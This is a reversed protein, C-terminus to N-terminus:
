WPSPLVAEIATAIVEYGDVNPHINPGYPAVACMWTLECIHAVNNPVIGLVPVNVLTDDHGDFATDVDAIAVDLGSYVSRLVSNLQDIVHTSREAIEAGEPGRIDDGLYPDDHGLGVFTVGPGAVSKLAQVILTFEARVKMLQVSACMDDGSAHHLCHLLNNFGLDITVIGQEDYHTSLFNMATSLQTDVGGYCHDDGTLMTTTTEGPCGTQTLDLTIGRAAEYSVIDNAYGEDTRTGHRSDATPQVGLSESAGVALYFYAPTVDAGASSTLAMSTTTAGTLLAVVAFLVTLHTRSCKLKM